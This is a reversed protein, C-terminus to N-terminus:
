GSMKESRCIALCLLWPVQTKHGPETYNRENCSRNKKLSHSYEKFTHVIAMTKGWPQGSGASQCVFILISYWLVQQLGKMKKKRNKEVSRSFLVTWESQRSEIWAEIDELKWAIARSGIKIPKPFNGTEINKYIFSRSIPYLSLVESLRLLRTHTTKVESMILVGQLKLFNRLRIM